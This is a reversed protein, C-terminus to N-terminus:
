KMNFYILLVSVDAPSIGSIRSAQGINLPHIANLKQCAEIRIGKIERYDFDAPLKKNELRKFAEIEMQQKKIYGAYKIEIQARAYVEDSTEPRTPDVEKLDDYGLEPRRILDALRIGTSVPTSGKRELLSLLKESPPLFTNECREVERDIELFLKQKAEYREDDILGVRRGYEILRRDANDQRLVLRYECRSTMIRYPENTGKTVLDDILTGIYSTDRTLILEDEGKIKLAANIGAILGQAAAEEYGSTGNFQGAGYLGPIEKFELTPYLQTPDALDYEIAYATRMVRANELGKISHLIDLQDDEPLSSSLGQVYVEDTDRGMPELFLQHREKDSFRM